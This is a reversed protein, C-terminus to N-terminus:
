PVLSPPRAIAAWYVVRRGAPTANASIEVTWNGAAKQASPLVSGARAREFTGGQSDSIGDPIGSGSPAIIKLAFDSRYSYPTNPDSPEWADHWWIAADLQSAGGSMPIINLTGAPDGAALVTSGWYGVGDSLLQVCGAGRTQDFGPATSSCPTDGALIMQAYVLGPWVFTSGLWPFAWGGRMWRILEAAAAAAVPTSGSTFDFYELGTSPTTADSAYATMYDSPAIVDPKFRGHIRGSSHLSPAKNPDNTNYFGVGIVGPARAPAGVEQNTYNGNAAIVVAGAAFAYEALADVIVNEECRLQTEFVIVQDCRRLAQEVAHQAAVLDFQAQNAATDVDCASRDALKYIQFMDVVASSQGAFDETYTCNAALFGATSTGHGGRDDLLDTSSPICGPGGATCDFCGSLGSTPNFLVHDRDVGTDLLAIRTPRISGSGMYAPLNVQKAAELASVGGIANSPLGANGIGPPCRKKPSGAGPGVQCGDPLSALKFRPEVAVVASDMALSDRLNARVSVCIAPILWGSDVSTIQWAAPQRERWAAFASARYFALTDVLTAFYAPGRYKVPKDCYMLLPPVYRYDKLLVVLTDFGPPSLEVLHTTAAKIPPSVSKPPSSVRTLLEAASADLSM